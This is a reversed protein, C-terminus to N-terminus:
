KDVSMQNATIWDICNGVTKWANVIGMTLQVDYYVTDTTTGDRMQYPVANLNTKLASAFVQKEEDNLMDLSTNDLNGAPVDAITALSKVVVTKVQDRDLLAM